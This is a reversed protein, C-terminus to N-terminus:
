PVGNVCQQCSNVQRTCNYATPTGQLTNLLAYICWMGGDQGLSAAAPSPAAVLQGRAARYMM